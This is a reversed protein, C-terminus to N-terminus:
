PGLSSHGFALGLSCPLWSCNGRIKVKLGWWYGLENGCREGGENNPSVTRKMLRKTLGEVCYKEVGELATLGESGSVAREGRGWLGPESSPDPSTEGGLVTLTLAEKSARPDGSYFSLPMARAHAADEPANHHSSSRQTEVFVGSYGSM